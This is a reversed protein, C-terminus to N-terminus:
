FREPFDTIIAEVPVGSGKVRNWEKVDNITYLRLLMGSNIAEKGYESLAFPIQTHLATLGLKKAARVAERPIRWVLGAVAIYPDLEIVRGVSESNFSSIIVRGRMNYIDILELVKQEIGYYPVKNTKLEINIQMTNGTAWTLFEDLTLIKEGAFKPHFWSGADLEAIEAYTMREIAGKGNTTRNVTEDHIIVIEGDKTMQVDLEIGDADLRVAAEFAAMTNEPHTGSAGRHAFIAPKKNM